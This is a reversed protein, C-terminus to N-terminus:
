RVFKAVPLRKAAAMHAVLPFMPPPLHLELESRVGVGHEMLAELFLWVNAIDGIGARAWERDGRAHVFVAVTYGIAALEVHDIDTLPLPALGPHTLGGSEIAFPAYYPEGRLRPHLAGLVHEAALSWHNFIPSLTLNAGSNAVLIFDGRKRWDDLDNLLPRRRAM